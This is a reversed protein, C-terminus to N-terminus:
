RREAEANSCFAPYPRRSTFAPGVSRCCLLEIDKLALFFCKQASLNFYSMNLQPSPVPTSNIHRWEGNCPVGRLTVGRETPSCEASHLEERRQLASRPTYSREGNCPVGASLFSPQIGCFTVKSSRSSM